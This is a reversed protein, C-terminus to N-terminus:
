PAPHMNLYVSNVNFNKDHVWIARCMKHHDFKFSIGDASSYLGEKMKKLKYVKSISQYSLGTHIGKETVFSPSTVSIVKVLPRGRVANPDTVAYVTLANNNKNHGAYWFAITKGMSTDGEDPQGLFKIINEMPQNIKINGILKGPVIGLRPRRNIIRISDQPFTDKWETKSIVPIQQSQGYIRAEFYVSCLIAPILFIMIKM